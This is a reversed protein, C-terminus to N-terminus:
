AGTPEFGDAFILDPALEYAGLDQAGFRDQMTVFDFVRPGGDRTATQATAPAFDIAISGLSLRYDGVAANRFLPDSVIREATPPLDGFDNGLLHQFCFPQPADPSAILVHGPQWVIGLHVYTGRVDDNPDCYGAGAIV